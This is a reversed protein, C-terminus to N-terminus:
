VHAQQLLQFFVLRDYYNTQKLHINRMQNEKLKFGILKMMMNHHDPLSKKYILVLELLASASVIPETISCFTTYCKKMETKFVNDDRLLLEKFTNRSLVVQKNMTQLESYSKILEKNKQTRQQNVVQYYRVVLLLTQVKDGYVELSLFHLLSLLQIFILKV